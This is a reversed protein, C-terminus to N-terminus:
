SQHSIQLHQNTIPGNIINLIQNCSSLGHLLDNEPLQAAPPSPQDPPSGQRVFSAEPSGRQGADVLAPPLGAPMEPSAADGRRANAKLISLDDSYTSSNQGQITGYKPDDQLLVRHKTRSRQKELRRNYATGNFKKGNDRPSAGDEKQKLRLFGRM